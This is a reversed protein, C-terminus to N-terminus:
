AHDRDQGFAGFPTSSMAPAAPQAGPLTRRTSVTRGSTASASAAPAARDDRELGGDDAVTERPGVVEPDRALDFIGYAAAPATGAVMATTSPRAQTPSSSIRQARDRGAVVDHLDAGAVQRRQGRAPPVPAVVTAAVECRAARAPMRTKAVPPRPPTCRSARLVQSSDASRCDSAVVGTATTQAPTFDIRSTGAVRSRSSVRPTGTTPTPM